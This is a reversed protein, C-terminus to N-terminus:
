EIKEVIERAVMRNVKISAHADNKNVIRESAPINKTLRSVNITAVNNREFFNVVDNVYLSDSITLHSLLPLVVVILKVSNEKAYDM